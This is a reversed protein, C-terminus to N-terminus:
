LRLAGTSAVAHPRISGGGLRYHKRGHADARAFGESSKGSKAMKITEYFGKM